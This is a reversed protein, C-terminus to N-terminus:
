LLQRRHLRLRARHRATLTWTTNRALMDVEGSQLATFRQQATLPVFKVKEADGFIAAAVARCIDVDIGTWKGQSDASCSARSGGTTVGCILQGRAKIADLDKGAHRRAPPM